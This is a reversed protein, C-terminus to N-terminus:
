PRVLRASRVSEASPRISPTASGTVSSTSASSSSSSSSVRSPSSGGSPSARIRARTSLAGLAPTPPEIGFGLFSLTAELLIATGITLTAAVVIPGITNPIMHRFMIRLDGAGSAKAAEVYEKERLSLFTGRVIRAITTWIFFALLLALKRRRRQSRPIEVRDVPGRAPTLDFLPRHDADAPQRGLRRLLRRSRRHDHRHGDLPLRRPPRCSGIHPHRLAGPQLLRPGGPRHRVSAAASPPETLASSTSTPTRTPRSSTPSPAAASSSRSARHPKRNRAPASRFPAARIGVPQAGRGRPGHRLRAGDAPVSAGVRTLGRGCVRRRGPDPPGIALGTGSSERDTM